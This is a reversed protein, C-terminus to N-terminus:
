GRQVATARFAAHQVTIATRAKMTTLADPVDRIPNDAASFDDLALAGLEGPLTTLRNGSVNLSKVPSRGLDAPLSTMRNNSVDLTRLAKM